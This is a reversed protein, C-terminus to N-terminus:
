KNSFYVSGSSRDDRHLKLLMEILADVVKSQAVIAADSAVPQNNKRAHTVLRTLKELEYAYEEHLNEYTIM